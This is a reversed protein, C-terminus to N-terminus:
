RRAADRLPAVGQGSVARILSSQNRMERPGHRAGPRNTTGGDFPIGTLAVDLGAADSVIPLRMFSAIGAFRPVLAADVPQSSM